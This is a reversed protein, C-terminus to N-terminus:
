RIPIRPVIQPMLADTSYYVEVKPNGGDPAFLVVASLGGPAGVDLRGWRYGDVTLRAPYQGPAFPRRNYLRQCEENALRAALEAAESVTLKSAHSLMRSSAPTPQPSHSCGCLVILLASLGGFWLRRLSEPLNKM